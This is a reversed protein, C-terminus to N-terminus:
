RIDGNDSLNKQAFFKIHSAPRPLLAFRTRMAEPTAAPMIHAFAMDIENRTVESITIM